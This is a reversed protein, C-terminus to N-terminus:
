LFNLRFNGSAPRMQFRDSNRKTKAIILVKSLLKRECLPDGAFKVWDRSGNRTRFMMLWTKLQALLEFVSFFNSFHEHEKREKTGASELCEVRHIHFIEEDRSVAFNGLPLLSSSDLRSSSFSKRWLSRILQTVLRRDYLKIEARIEKENTEDVSPFLISVHRMLNSRRLDYAACLANWPLRLSDRRFYHLAFSQYLVCVM